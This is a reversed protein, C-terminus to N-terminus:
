GCCPVNGNPVQALVPAVTTVVSLIAAVLLSFALKRM